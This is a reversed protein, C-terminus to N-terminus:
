DHIVEAWSIRTDTVDATTATRPAVDCMRSPSLTVTSPAAPVTVSAYPPFTHTSGSAAGEM